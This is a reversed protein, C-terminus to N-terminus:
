PSVIVEGAYGDLLIEKKELLTPSVNQCGMVAPVGMARALIAAHSNNSGRISIIGALFEKPFEALMPAS